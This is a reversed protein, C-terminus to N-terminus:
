GPYREAALASLRRLFRRFLLNMVPRVVSISLNTVATGHMALTWTLRCGGETPM